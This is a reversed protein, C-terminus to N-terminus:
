DRLPNYVGRSRPHDRRAVWKVPRPPTFGARAPIIGILINQVRDPVPLGRALPSSGNQRNVSHFASRTFGARAPIIGAEMVAYLTTSPLGRALPSSGPLDSIAGDSDRYVGRSRPHDGFGRAPPEPSTTFGARAPIIRAGAPSPARPRRLGRALPSSGVADVPSSSVCLYVGRSRPHDGPTDSRGVAPDTFGARAPIIRMLLLGTGSPPRLGRALPSSGALLRPQSTM